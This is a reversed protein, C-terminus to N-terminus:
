HSSAESVCCKQREGVLGISVGERACWNGEAPELWGGKSRCSSQTLRVPMCGNPQTSFCLVEFWTEDDAIDLRGDAAVKRLTAESDDYEISFSAAVGDKGFSADRKAREFLDDMTPLKDLPTQGAYLRSRAQIVRGDRVVIRLEKRAAVSFFEHQDLVFVYDTLQRRQWWRQHEEIQALYPNEAATAAAQVIPPPVVLEQAAPQPVPASQSPEPRAGCAWTISLLAVFRYRLVRQKM